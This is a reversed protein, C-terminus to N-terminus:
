KKRRWEKIMEIAKNWERSFREKDELTMTEAATRQYTLFDRFSRSSGIEWKEKVIRYSEEADHEWAIETVEELHKRLTKRTIRPAKEM